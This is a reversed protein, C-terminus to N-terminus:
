FMRKGILGLYNLNIASCSFHIVIFPLGGRILSLKMRPVQLVVQDM